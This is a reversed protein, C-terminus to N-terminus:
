GPVGFGVIQAIKQAAMDPSINSVDIKETNMNEYLPLRALSRELVDATRKHKKVDLMIRKELTKKSVSLTFKYLNYDKEGIRRVIDDIISEYQMVWCFIVNEYESCKLFNNLLFAINEEVMNKTEDSVTFPNMNWCWDGDLYVGPKLIKLLAKCTASKGAGMTGNIM